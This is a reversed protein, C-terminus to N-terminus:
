NPGVEREPMRGTGTDWICCAARFVVLVARQRGREGGREM